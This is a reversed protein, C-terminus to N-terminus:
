GRRLGDKKMGGSRGSGVTVCFSVSPKTNKMTNGAVKVVLFTLPLLQSHDLLLATDMDSLLIYELERLNM